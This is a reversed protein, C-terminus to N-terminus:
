MAVALYEMLLVLGYGGSPLAIAGFVPHQTFPQFAGERNRAIADIVWEIQQRKKKEDQTQDSLKMLKTQLQECAERKAKEASHRLAVTNGFAYAANLGFIILLGTPLDWHDFYTDRSTIMLFLIIFPYYLLHGIVATRQAILDIGLWEHLYAKEVGSRSAENNLFNDPWQIDEEIFIKILRRCLRTADVVYFM